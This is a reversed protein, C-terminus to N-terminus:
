EPKASAPSPTSPGGPAFVPAWARLSLELVQARQEDSYPRIDM